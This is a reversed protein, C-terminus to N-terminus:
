ENRQCLVKRRNCVIYNLQISTGCTLLPACSTQQDVLLLQIAGFCLVGGNFFSNARHLEDPILADADPHVNSAGVGVIQL